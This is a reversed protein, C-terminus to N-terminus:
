LNQAQAELNTQIRRLRERRLPHASFWDLPTRTEPSAARALLGLAAAPDYGANMAVCMGIRDAEEEEKRSMRQCALHGLLWTWDGARHGLLCSALATGLGLFVNRVGQERGHRRMAHAMEHGIVFALEDDTPNLTKLLATTLTITGDRWCLADPVNGPVLIARHPWGSVSGSGSGVTALLASAIRRVRDADPTTKASHRARWLWSTLGM